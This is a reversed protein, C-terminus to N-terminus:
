NLSEILPKALVEIIITTENPGEDPNQPPNLPHNLLTATGPVSRM